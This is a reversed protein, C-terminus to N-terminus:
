KTMQNEERERERLNRCTWQYLEPIFIVSATVEVGKTVARTFCGFQSNDDEPRKAPFLRLMDNGAFDDPLCSPSPCYVGSCVRQTFHEFWTLLDQGCSRNNHYEGDNSSLSSSLSSACGRREDVLSLPRSTTASSVCFLEGSSFDLVLYKDVLHNFMNAAIAHLHGSNSGPVFNRVISHVRQDCVHINDFSLLNM